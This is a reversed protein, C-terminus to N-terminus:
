PMTGRLGALGTIVRLSEPPGPWHRAVCQPGASRVARRLAWAVLIADDLQGIVPLIDPVIDIPLALYAVVGVILWRTSRPLGPDRALRTMLVVCDPIMRAFARASGTRGALVLGCLLVAYVLSVAGLSVLCWTWFTM